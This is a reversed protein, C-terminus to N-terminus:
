PKCGTAHICTGHVFKITLAVTKIRINLVVHKSWLLDDELAVLRKYAIVLSYHECKCITYM